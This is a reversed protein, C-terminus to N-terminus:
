ALTRSAMHANSAKCKSGAGGSILHRRVRRNLIHKKSPVVSAFVSQAAEPEKVDLASLNLAVGQRLFFKVVRDKGERQAYAMAAATDLADLDYKEPERVFLHGLTEVDERDIAAEVFNPALEHAQATRLDRLPTAWHTKTTVRLLGRERLLRANQVPIGVTLEIPQWMDPPSADLIQGLIEASNTSGAVTELFNDPRVPAKLVFTLVRHNNLRAATAVLANLTEPPWDVHRLLYMAEPAYRCAVYPAALAAFGIPARPLWETLESVTGARVLNGWYPDAPPVVELLRTRSVHLTAMAIRVADMDCHAVAGLALRGFGPTFLPAYEDALFQASRNAGFVCAAVFAADFFEAQPRTDAVSRSYIDHNLLIRALPVSNGVIACLVARDDLTFPTCMEGVCRHYVPDNRRDHKALFELTRFRKAFTPPARVKHFVAMEAPNAWAPAGNRTCYATVADLLPSTACGMVELYAEQFNSVGGLVGCLRRAQEFALGRGTLADLPGELVGQILCRELADWEEPTGLESVMETSQVRVGVTYIM